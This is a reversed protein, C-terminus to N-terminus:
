NEVLSKRGIKNYRELSASKVFSSLISCIPNFMFSVHSEFLWMLPWAHGPAIEDRQSNQHWLLTELMKSPRFNM